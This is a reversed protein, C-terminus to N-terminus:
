FGITVKIGIRNVNNFTREGYLGVLTNQMFPVLDSIRRDIFIYGSEPTVGIGMGYRYVYILRSELGFNIKDKSFLVSVAPKFCFGVEKVIVQTTTGTVTDTVVIYDNVLQDIKNPAIVTGSSTIVTTKGEPPVYKTVTKVKNDEQYKVSVTDKKVEVLAKVQSNLALENNKVENLQKQTSKWQLYLFVCFIMCIFTLVDKIKNM